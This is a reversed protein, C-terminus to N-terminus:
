DNLTEKTAVQILDEHARKTDENWGVVGEMSPMTDIFIAGCRMCETDGVDFSSELLYKEEQCHPCKVDNEEEYDVRVVSYCYPCTDDPMEYRTLEAGCDVCHYLKTDLRDNPDPELIEDWVVNGHEDVLAIINEGPADYIEKVNGDPENTIDIVDKTVLNVAKDPLSQSSHTLCLECSTAAWVDWSWTGEEGCFQMAKSGKMTTINTNQILTMSTDNTDNYFLGPFQSEYAYKNKKWWEKDPLYGDHSYFNGDEAEEWGGMMVYNDGHGIWWRSGKYRVGSDMLNDMINFVKEDKEAYKFLVSTIDRIMVQTDSLPGEGRGVVGNHMIINRTTYELQDLELQNDAIPFPHTCHEAGGGLVGQWATSPTRGATGVRFHIAVTHDKTFKEATFSEWFADWSMLGKKVHWQNDETLYAYGAGDPNDRWCRKLTAKDPLEVGAENVIAICM